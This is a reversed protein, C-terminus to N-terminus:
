DFDGRGFEYSPRAAVNLVLAIAAISAVMSSKGNSLFPLTLGTVPLLGVTMALNVFAQFGFWAFVGVCILRGAPDRNRLAVALIGALLVVFLLVVVASGLFGTENGIVAFVFDTQREPVRGSAHGNGEGLGVGLVGGSGIATMSRELQYGEDQRHRRASADTRHGGFSRLLADVRARQYDRLGWQYVPLIAVLGLLGIALLHRLRAGAVFLMAFLIPLSILATGLDPQPLVLAMPLVTLFFPVGLGRFTKYSSRFRIYRALVIVLSLKMFESPQTQVGFISLWRRAGNLAPATLLVLGLLVLNAGYVLYAHALITKYPVLLAIAAVALGLLVGTAQALHLSEELRTGVRVSLGSLTLLGFATLALAPLVVPLQFAGRLSRFAPLRM